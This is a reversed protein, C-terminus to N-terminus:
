HTTIGTSPHGHCSLRGESNDKYVGSMVSVCEGACECVARVESVVVTRRWESM